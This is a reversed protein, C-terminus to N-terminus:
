RMGILGTATTGTALVRAVAGSPYLQGDYVTATITVGSPTKYKLVGGIGVYVGRPSGGAIDSDDDPTIAFDSKSFPAQFSM